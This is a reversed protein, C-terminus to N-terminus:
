EEILWNKIGQLSIDYKASVIQEPLKDKTIKPFNGNVIYRNKNVCEFFIHDYEQHYIYNKSLLKKRYEAIDTAQTLLNSVIDIVIPLTIINNGQTQKKDIFYVVLEGNNKHDLQEISSITVYDSTSQTSKIEYWCDDYIFDRAADKHTKWAFLVENANKGEKIEFIIFLLEGILGKIEEISLIDQRTADFLQQWKLFSNLLMKLAEKENQMNRSKEILDICLYVFEKTLTPNILEIILYHQALCLGNTVKIASSSKINNIEQPTPVLLQKNADESVSLLLRLPHSSDVLIQGDRCTEWRQEFQENIMM